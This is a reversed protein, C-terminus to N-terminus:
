PLVSPGRRREDRKRAALSLQWGGTDFQGKRASGSNIHQQWDGNRDLDLLWCINQAGGDSAKWTGVQRGYVFGGTNYCNGVTAVEPVIIKSM